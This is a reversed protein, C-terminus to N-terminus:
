GPFPKTMTPKSKYHDVKITAPKGQGGMVSIPTRSGGKAVNGKSYSKKYPM